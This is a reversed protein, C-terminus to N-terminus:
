FDISNHFLDVEVDDDNEDRAMVRGVLKLLAFFINRM